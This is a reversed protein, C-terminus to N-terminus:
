ADPKQTSWPGDALTQPWDTLRDACAPCQKLAVFQVATANGDGARRFTAGDRVDLIVLQRDLIPMALYKDRTDFSVYGKTRHDWDIKAVWEIFQESGWEVADTQPPFIPCGGQCCHSTHVGALWLEELLDVMGEDIKELRGEIEILRYPHHAPAYDRYVGCKCSDSGPYPATNPLGFRFEHVHEAM